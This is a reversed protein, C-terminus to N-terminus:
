EDMAEDEDRSPSPLKASKPSAPELQKAALQPSGLPPSAALKEPSGGGQKPIQPSVSQPGASVPKVVPLSLVPALTHPKSLQPSPIQGLNPSPAKVPAPQQQPAAVPQQQAAATQLTKQQVPVAAAELTLLNKFIM